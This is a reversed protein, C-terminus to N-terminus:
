EVATRNGDDWAGDERMMQVLMGERLGRDAVRLRPCPFARRIAELIACGALVLDAREAGICPSAVRDEYSMALLREVVANIEQATMWCGDVRNRDYRKLELHVGAITTVTGSTGLMHVGHLGDSGHERAFPAIMAAVEAVMAEYTDRTVKLGGHREALTVVGNPLSVWGRIQPLPPGRGVKQSRELRVLESSGGGIDFLVVGEAQPDMLPTCGTAALCAETERDIVELTLGVEEEVRARFEQGNVAARCAETAILRARTVGRNRMKNRCIELAAISRDIAAESLRGSGSVGEGLRVIRSFADVVRFGDGAPRAVLLRCNNTGLDLAAYTPGGRDNGLGQERRGGPSRRGWRPRGLPARDIAPDLGPADGAEGSM